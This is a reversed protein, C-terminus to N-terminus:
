RVETSIEASTASAVSESLHKKADLRGFVEDVTPWPPGAHLANVLERGFPERNPFQDSTDWRWAAVMALVLQRCHALLTHDVGIYQASVTEPVHALDFEVPGRCCTELDIFLPGNSTNLVNGPHPEGHLLQEVAGHDRIAQRMRRLTSTLMDRDADTLEPTLDCNTVLHEASAVRDTFHPTAVDLKRMGVHLRKLADAYAAPSFESTISEYFTWLTVEFGAHEYRRPEVRPDLSAVPSETKALRQALDIEFWALGHEVPAVRAFTNCPLLHLAVKNSNQLVTAHDATLRLEVAISIAVDIARALDSADM